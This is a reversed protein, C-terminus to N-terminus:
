TGFSGPALVVAKTLVSLFQSIDSCNSVCDNRNDALNFYLVKHVGKFFALAKGQCSM